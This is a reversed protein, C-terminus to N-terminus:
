HLVGGGSHFKITKLPLVCLGGATFIIASAYVPFSSDIVLLLGGALPATMGGIRSLASATGCATGRVNTAFLEPTMGYLVAWMTTSTLSIGVTSARVAWRSEVLAFVICFIATMLTSLTLSLRRGLPSQILYAGLLAGPCGGLTFIVIDWMTETLTKPITEDRPLRTELLKPLYVNFMTYALAIALWIWWVLLTTARWEKSLVINLRDFWGGLPRSAWRPFISLFKWKEHVSSHLITLQAADSNHSREARAEHESLFPDTEAEDEPPYHGNEMTRSLGAPPSIATSQYNPEAPGIHGGITVDEPGNPKQSDSANLTDVNEEDPSTFIVTESSDEVDSIDINFGGGNFRSIKRLSLVADQPRGTHVLYRPSEHLRFFVVRAMFMLLTMLGLIILM